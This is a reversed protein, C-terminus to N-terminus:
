VSGNIDDLTVRQPELTLGHWVRVGREKGSEYGLDHMRRGFAQQTMPKNGRTEDWTRYKGYLEAAGCNLRPNPWTYNELFDGLENMESKYAITAEKVIEPTMLGHIKWAIAGNVCWALIGSAEALLKEPLDPDKELDSFIKKYPILRVRRWMGNDQGRVEPKHNAAIHLKFEPRFEFFEKFLFRAAIKEGGTFQKVLAENLGRGEGVEICSVFRKGRLRAIDNSAGGRRQATITSADIQSAYEEGLVHLITNLFTSKGNSGTGYHVFVVQEKGSGTLCYGVVRQVYDVLAQTQFVDLLFKTWLPAQALPNYHTPSLRTLYETLEHAHAEGTTLDITGNSCNLLDPGADFAEPVAVIGPESQSLEIMSKLRRAGSSAEAHKILDKAAKLDDKHEKDNRFMKLDEGADHVMSRVTDKAYRMMLDTRDKHWRAGTWVVWGFESVYRFHEGHHKCLRHANGLDTAGFGDLLNEPNDPSLTSLPGTGNSSVAREFAPDEHFGGNGRKEMESWIIREEPSLPWVPIAPSTKDPSPPTEM